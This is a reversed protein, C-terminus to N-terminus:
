TRTACSTHTPRYRAASSAKAWVWSTTVVANGRDGNIPNASFLVGSADALVLQQVFVALRADSAALGRERRYALARPALGSERCREVAVHLEALGRVNLFTEHQGAFSAGAGDEDVASSRM